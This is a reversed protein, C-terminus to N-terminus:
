KDREELPKRSEDESPRVVADPWAKLRGIKKEEVEREIEREVIKYLVKYVVWGLVAIVLVLLIWGMM